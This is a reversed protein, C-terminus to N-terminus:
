ILDRDRRQSQWAARWWLARSGVDVFLTILFSVFGCPVCATRAPGFSLVVSVAVSLGVERFEFKPLCTDTEHGGEDTVRYVRRDTNWPSEGEGSFYWPISRLQNETLHGIEKCFTSMRQQCNQLVM